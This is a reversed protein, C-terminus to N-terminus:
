SRDSKHRCPCRVTDRPYRWGLRFLDGGNFRGQSIASLLGDICFALDDSGPKNVDVRMIVTLCGPIVM